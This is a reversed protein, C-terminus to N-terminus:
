ASAETLWPHILIDSITARQQPKEKLILGMLDVALPDVTMNWHDLLDSIKGDVIMRYATSTSAAIDFPPIGTLMIFLLVGLAWVDGAQPHMYARNYMEPPIYNRKGHAGDGQVVGSSSVRTSMGFDIIVCRGTKSDCLINELSIDRHAVGAEHLYGIAEVIQRFISRAVSNHLRGGKEVVDYLDGGDFFEMVLYMHENDECFDLCKIVGPHHVSQLIALETLPSERSKSAYDRLKEVFHSM